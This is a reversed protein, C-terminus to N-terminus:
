RDNKAEWAARGPWRNWFIAASKLALERSVEHAALFTSWGRRHQEGHHHSCCPLAYRDSVKTAIGKGGAFDLHQAEMKGGCPSLKNWVCDRGRLWQLFGPAAKEAPRPANRKRPRTDIKM